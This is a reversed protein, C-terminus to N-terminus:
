DKKISEKKTKNSKMYTKRYFNLFLVLNMFVYGNQFYWGFRKADNQMYGDVFAYAISSMPGFIFQFIQLLTLFKKPLPFKWKMICCAYYYYMFTHIVGNFSVFIWAGEVNWHYPLGCALPAGIHHLYQLWIVPRGCLILFYTDLFEVYKSIYFVYVVKTYIKGVLEDDFHGLAYVGNKLNFLCYIMTTACIFSFISMIVNYYAMIKKCKLKNKEYYSSQKAWIGFVPQFLCYPIVLLYLLDVSFYKYFLGLLNNENQIVESQLEM